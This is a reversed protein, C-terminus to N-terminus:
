ASRSIVGMAVRRQKGSIGLILRSGCKLSRDSIRLM